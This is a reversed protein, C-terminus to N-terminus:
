LKSFFCFLVSVCCFVKLADFIGWVNLTVKDAMHSDRVLM